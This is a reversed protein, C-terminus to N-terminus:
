TAKTPLRTCSSKHRGLSSEPGIRRGATGEVLGLIFETIIEFISQFPSKPILTASRAILGGAIILFAMVLLMTLFSNTINLTGLPGLDVSWLTEPAVAVHVEM